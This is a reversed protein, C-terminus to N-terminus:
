QLPLFVDLVAENEPVDPFSRVRQLFLPFERLEEGSAPLWTASLYTLAEGLTEHTGVHRLVACRGGPITEEVIGLDNAAVERDTAVCLDMRYDEPPSAAPDGYLLNFTASLRPPLQNEKRWTIFDRISDGLRQPDGRHQLAAVRTEAFDVIKVDTEQYNPKMHRNRLNTLPQNIALWSTWHPAERFDSPTQGVTKKFARSFAEHSEYGNELAIELIKLHERFALQFSARRLRVRQVYRFVSMGVFESFQRHFHYKSFTAVTSLQEVRLDEQLHEDIYDLVRRFRHSYSSLLTEEAHHSSRPRRTSDNMRYSM